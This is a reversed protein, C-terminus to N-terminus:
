GLCVMGLEGGEPTEGTDLLPRRTLRRALSSPLEATRSAKV